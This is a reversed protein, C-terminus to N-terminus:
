LTGNVRLGELRLSIRQQLEALQRRLAAREAETAAAELAATLEARQHFLDIEPPRYGANKLIKYPMRLSVPTANWAEDEAFPQGFGRTGALEGSDLAEQLHRAIEDDQTPM